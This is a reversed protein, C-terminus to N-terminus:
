SQEQADRRTQMRKLKGYFTGVSESRVIVGVSGGRYLTDLLQVMADIEDHRITTPMGGAARKRESM